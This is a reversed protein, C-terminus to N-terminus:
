GKSVVTKTAIYTGLDDTVTCTVEGHVPLRMIAHHIYGLDNVGQMVKTTEQIIDVAKPGSSYEITFHPKGAAVDVTCRVDTLYTEHGDITHHEPINSTQITVSPDASHQLCDTILIVHWYCGNSPKWWPARDRLWTEEVWVFIQCAYM